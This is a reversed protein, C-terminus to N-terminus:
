DNGAFSVYKSLNIRIPNKVNQELEEHRGGNLADRNKTIIQVVSDVQVDFPDALKTSTNMYQHQHQHTQM